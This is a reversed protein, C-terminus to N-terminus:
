DVGDRIVIVKLRQIGDFNRLQDSLERIRETDGRCFLSELCWEEQHPHSTNLIMDQYEHQISHM